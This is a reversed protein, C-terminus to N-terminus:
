HKHKKCTVSIYGSVRWGGGRKSWYRWQTLGWRESRAARPDAPCMSPASGSQLYDAGGVGARVWWCGELVHLTFHGGEQQLVPRGRFYSGDAKYVGGVGPEYISKRKIDEM